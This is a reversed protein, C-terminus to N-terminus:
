VKDITSYKKRFGFQHDLILLKLEIFPNLRKFLLKEFLKSMCPLISIPQYSTAQEPPKGSKLLMILEARKWQEPVFQTRLIANYIHTLNSSQRKLYSKLSPHALRM